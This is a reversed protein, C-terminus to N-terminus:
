TVDLRYSVRTGDGAGDSPTIGVFGSSPTTHDHAAPSERDLRAANGDTSEAM